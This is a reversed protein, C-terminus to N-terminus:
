DRLPKVPPTDIIFLLEVVVDPAVDDEHVDEGLLVNLRREATIADGVLDAVRAVIAPGGEEASAGIMSSSRNDIGILGEILEFFDPADDDAFSAEGITGKDLALDVLVNM